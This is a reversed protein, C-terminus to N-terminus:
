VGKAKGGGSKGKGAKGAKGGDTGGKGSKGSKGSKGLSIRAGKEGGKGSKGARGKVSSSASGSASASKSGSTPPSKSSSAKTSKVSALKAKKDSSSSGAAKSKKGSRFSVSAMSLDTSQLIREWTVAGDYLRDEEFNDELQPELGQHIIRIREDRPVPYADRRRVSLTEEAQNAPDSANAVEMGGLLSVLLAISFRPMM